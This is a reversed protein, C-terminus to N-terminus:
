RSGLACRHSCLAWHLSQWRLHAIEAWAEPSRGLWYGYLVCSFYIAHLFWDGALAHTEPFRAQLLQTWLTLVCAPVVLLVVGRLNM